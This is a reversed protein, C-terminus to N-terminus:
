GHCWECAEGYPCREIGVQMRRLAEPWMDRQTELDCPSNVLEHIGDCLWVFGHPAEVNVEGDTTDLIAALKEALQRTRREAKTM